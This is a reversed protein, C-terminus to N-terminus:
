YDYARYPDVKGDVLDNWEFVFADEGWLQYSEDLSSANVYTIPSKGGGEDVYIGRGEHIHGSVHLVPRVEEIRKRLEECGVFQGSNPSMHMMVQDGYEYAPGHTVLIDIGEPIKDWHPKIEPIQRYQSESLNRGRNFAWNLFWPQVPSGWIKLGRVTVGSDNLYTVGYNNCLEAHYDPDREFGWDHNGAILIKHSYDLDGYWRLFEEIDETSGRGTCDGSHIIIDGKPLKNKNTLQWHKGHTDSITVIKM